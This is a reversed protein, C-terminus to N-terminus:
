MLSQSTSEELVCWYTYICNTNDGYPIHAQIDENCDSVIRM